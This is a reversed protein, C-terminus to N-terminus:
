RNNFDRVMGSILYSAGAFGIAAVATFAVTSAISKGSFVNTGVYGVGFAAMAVGGAKNMDGNPKSLHHKSEYVGGAIAASLTTAGIAGAVIKPTIIM